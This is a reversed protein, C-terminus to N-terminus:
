LQPLGTGKKRKRERERKKEKKRLDIFIQIVLSPGRAGEISDLSSRNDNWGGDLIDDMCNNSIFPPSQPRKKPHQRQRPPLEPFKNSNKQTNNQPIKLDVCAYVVDVWGDDYMDACLNELEKKWQNRISCCHLILKKQQHNPHVPQSILERIQESKKRKRTDALIKSRQPSWIRREEMENGREERAIADSPTSRPIPFGKSSMEQTTSSAKRSFYHKRRNRKTM